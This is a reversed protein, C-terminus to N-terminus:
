KNNEKLTTTKEKNIKYDKKDNKYSIVFSIILFIIGLLIFIIDRTMRGELKKRKAEEVQKEFTM